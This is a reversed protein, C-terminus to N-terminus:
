EATSATVLLHDASDPLARLAVVEAGVAPTLVLVLILVLIEGETREAGLGEEAEVQSEHGHRVDDSSSLELVLLALQAGAAAQVKSELGRLVLFIRKVKSFRSHVTKHFHLINSSSNPSCFLFSNVPM